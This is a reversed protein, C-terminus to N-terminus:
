LRKMKIRQSNNVLVTSPFGRFSVKGEYHNWGGAATGVYWGGDIGVDILGQANVKFGITVKRSKDAWATLSCKKTSYTDTVISLGYKKIEAHRPSRHLADVNSKVWRKFPSEYYFAARHVPSATILVAGFDGSSQYEFCATGTAPIGANERHM